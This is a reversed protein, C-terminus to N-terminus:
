SLDKGGSFSNCLIGDTMGGNDSSEAACLKLSNESETKEILSKKFHRQKVCIKDRDKHITM